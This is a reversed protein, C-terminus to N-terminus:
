YINNGRYHRWFHENLRPALVKLLLFSLIRRTLTIWQCGDGNPFQGLYCAGFESVEEWLYSCYGRSADHPCFRIENQSSIKLFKFLAKVYAREQISRALGDETRHSVARLGCAEQWAWLAKREPCTGMLASAVSGERCDPKQGKLTRSSASDQPGQKM